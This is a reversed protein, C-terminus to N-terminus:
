GVMEAIAERAKELAEPLKEPQKGGAQALDPRRIDGARERAASATGRAAHIREQLEEISRSAYSARDQAARVDAAADAIKTELAHVAERAADRDHEAQQAAQDLNELESAVSSERDLVAQMRTQVGDREAAISRYRLVARLVRKRGLEARVETYRRARGAQIKLSRHRKEELELVDRLRELNEQTRALRQAAEKRRQKYRSVGAAEEFIGRRDQPNAALLADIQGQEMIANGDAGLGTDLFLERIDKLRAAQGNIRYESEGSRHLRRTISVDTHESPLLGDENDLVLTVDALGLPKRTRAGAFIVDEMKKGRLSRPSMDGLVWKIADVVNSKGCGNPGVVASVGRGFDFVTRDAFSKFGQIELRRIKM